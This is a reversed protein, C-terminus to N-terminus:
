WSQPDLPNPRPSGGLKNPNVCIACAFLSADDKHNSSSCTAPSQWCIDILASIRITSAHPHPHAPYCKSTKLIYYPRFPIKNRAGISNRTPRTPNEGASSSCASSATLTMSSSHSFLAFAFIPRPCSQEILIRESEAQILDCGIYPIASLLSAIVTAESHYKDWPLVGVFAANNDCYLIVQHKSRKLFVHDICLRARRM